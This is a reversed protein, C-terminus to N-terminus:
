QDARGLIGFWDPVRGATDRGRDSGEQRFDANAYEIGSDIVGILVGKGTLRFRPTQVADICSVRRGDAVEFFLRKPKEIYIVEELSALKEINEERIRVIAFNKLLPTVSEATESVRELTGSYLIIVDWTNTMENYGVQLNVSRLRETGTADLALNLLNEIKQSTM